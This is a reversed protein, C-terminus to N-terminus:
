KNLKTVLYPWVNEMIIPQAEETPHLGDAQMLETHVGVSDLLFPILPIQYEKALEIYIDYFAQTYRKGYNPPIKIGALIVDANAQQTLSIMGSLNQKISNISLGRLGDNGGLEIIVIEPQYRQLLSQIRYLGNGTTDGSISANILQYHFSKEMLRQGVLSVWSKDQQLGYAASLSDGIVLIVPPNKDVSMGATAICPFGMTIALLLLYIIRLISFGELM